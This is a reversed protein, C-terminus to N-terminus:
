LLKPNALVLQRRLAPAGGLITAADKLSRSAKQEGEAAIVQSRLNLFFLNQMLNLASVKARAERAKRDSASRQSKKKLQELAFQMQMKELQIKLAKAERAEKALVEDAARQKSLYAREDAVKGAAATALSQM